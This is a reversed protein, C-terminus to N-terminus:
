QEKDSFKMDNNAECISEPSVLSFKEAPKGVLIRREDRKKKIEVVREAKLIEGNLFFYHGKETV